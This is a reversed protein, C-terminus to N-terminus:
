SGIVQSPFLILRRLSHGRVQGQELDVRGGGDGRVGVQHGPAAQSEAVRPCCGPQRADRRSQTRALSAQRRSMRSRSPAEPGSADRSSGSVQATGHRELPQVLLRLTVWSSSNM